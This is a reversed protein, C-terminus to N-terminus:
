KTLENYLQQIGPLHRIREAQLLVAERHGKSALLALLHRLRDEYDYDPVYSHLMRNTVALVSDHSDPALRLLEDIFAFHNHGSGIYPAVAELLAQERKAVTPLHAALMSLQSLTQEPLQSQRNAWEVAREWFVIIRERQEPTLTDGRVTWFVWALTEIDKATAHKFIYEFRPGDLTEIGWLYAGAIRELLKERADRGKLSLGLARDVVGHKTLVEYLPRTFSAYALGDLACVMNPEYEAPFIWEVHGDTWAEDLYQLQPLYAGCLTSFEFNTNRCGALEREFTPQFTAWTSKHDGNAEDSVRAARLAHSFLADVIRGKPTNLAQFMADDNAEPVAPERQLLQDLVGQAREILAPQYAHEDNQTGVHLTDAIITVVWHQYQDEPQQWLSDNSVIEEFYTLLQEWGREWDASADKAEWAQKLGNIVEHQYELRAEHFDRLVDLFVRPFQRAASALASKLGDVTPGHLSLQGQFSNLKDVIVGATALGTLEEASYPSAGPGYWTTVFSNFDPHASVADVGLQGKLETFWLDAALSGLGNIASLWKLQQHKRIVEPEDGYDPMPLNKIADLTANQQEIDMGAFRDQLLHYLEHNHGSNFFGPQVIPNYLEKMNSWHRALVFIGVRRIIELEDVLMQKVIEKAHEPASHSWGLLVDRLADVIRNEASRWQHNQAHAEIAPRFVTSHDKRLGTSFVKRTREFMSQTAPKGAKAGITTAHHDIFLQLWYDDVITFPEPEGDDTGKRWTLTTMHHLVRAAKDWDDPTLSALLRPVLGQDIADTVLMREYPDDIWEHILDIDSMSIIKTPILGLIQAFTYSTRYNRRPQNNEDRWTTVKRVVALLQTALAQDHAKHAYEAVAKLYDLPAWFPIRVTHEKVPTPGPNNEPAFFGANKLPTFFAPFDSRQLLLQFGRIALEDSKKM